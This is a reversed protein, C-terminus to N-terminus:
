LNFCNFCVQDLMKMVRLNVSIEMVFSARWSQLLKFRLYSMVSHHSQMFVTIFKTSLFLLIACVHLMPLSSVWDFDDKLKNSM